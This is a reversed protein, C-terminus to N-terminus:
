HRFEFRRPGMRKKNRPVVYTIFRKVEEGKLKVKYFDARNGKSETKSLSYRFGLLDLIKTIQVIIKKSVGFFHTAVRGKPTYGDCDLYGRLFGMYFNRTHSFEKLSVDYTKKGKWVLYHKLFKYIIKSKYRVIIKGGPPYKYFYPKKNFFKSLLESFSLAYDEENLSFFFAVQYQSQPVAGGDAAFAGIIEGEVESDSIHFSPVIYKKGKLKKYYYYITSKGLNLKQSIKPISINDLILKVIEQKTKNDM